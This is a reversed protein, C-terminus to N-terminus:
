SRRSACRPSGRRIRWRRSRSCGSSSAWIPSCSRSKTLRDVLWAGAALLLLLWFAPLDPLAGWWSQGTGFLPISVLLALAAPNFVHGRRTRLLHKSLTALGGLAFTIAWPTETGLVFAVILGSLWASNPWRRTGRTLRVVILETLCAGAVASALHPLVPRWGLATGLLALLALFLLTLSGKPTRVFARIPAAAPAGAAPRARSVLTASM